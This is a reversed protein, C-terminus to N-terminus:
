SSSSVTLPPTRRRRRQDAAAARPLHRCRSSITAHHFTDERGPAAYECTITGGERNFDSALARQPARPAICVAVFVEAAADRKPLHAVELALLEDIAEEGQDVFVFGQMERDDATLREHAKPLQVFDQRTEGIAADVGLEHGARYARDGDFPGLQAPQLEHDRDVAELGLVVLAALGSGVVADDLVDLAVADRHVARHGLLLDAAVAVEFLEDADPRVVGIDALDPDAEVRRLDALDRFLPELRLIAFAHDGGQHREALRERFQAHGLAHDLDVGLRRLVRLLAGERLGRGADGCIELAVDRRALEAAVGVARVAPADGRGSEVGDRPVPKGAAELDPGDEGVRQPDAAAHLPHPGRGCSGRSCGSIIALKIRVIRFALRATRDTRSNARPSAAVSWGNSTWRTGIRRQLM